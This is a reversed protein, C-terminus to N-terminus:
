VMCIFHIKTELRVIPKTSKTTIVFIEEPIPKGQQYLAFLTETLVQSSAGTVILLIRKM